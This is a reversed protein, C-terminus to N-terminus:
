VGRKSECISIIDKTSFSPVILNINGIPEMYLKVLEKDPAELPNNVEITDGSRLQCRYSVNPATLTAECDYEDELRQLVVDM